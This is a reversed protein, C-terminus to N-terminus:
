FVEKFNAGLYQLRVTTKADGCVAESITGVHKYGIVKYVGNFYGVSSSQLSLYQGLLLRPEFIMDFLLFNDERQPSGLLGSEADILNVVGKFAEEENMILITDGDIFFHGGSYDQILKDAYGSVQVERKFKGEFNGIIRRAKPNIQYAINAMYNYISTDKPVNLSVYSNALNDSGSNVNIVTFFDVGQRRSYCHSITGSFIKSLVQDDEYGAYLEVLRLKSLTTQIPDKYILNRTTESLNYVTISGNALKSILQKEIDFEITFPPDITVKGQYVDEIELRYKRQRKAM